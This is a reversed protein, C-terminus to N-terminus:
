RATPAGTRSGQTARRSWAMMCGDASRCLGVSDHCAAGWFSCDLGTAPRHATHAGPSGDRPLSRRRTRAATTAPVSFCSTRTAADHSSMLIGPAVAPGHRLLEMAENAPMTVATARTTGSSRALGHRAALSRRRRRRARVRGAARHRRQCGQEHLRQHIWQSLSGRYPRTM